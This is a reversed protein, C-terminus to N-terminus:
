ARWLGHKNCYARVVLGKQMPVYFDAEPKEGPKLYKRNVYPGNIIEVWEIYHDEEMPHPNAGVTVKSGSQGETLVPVHKERGEDEFTKEPMLVMPKGCCEMESECGKANVVEVAMPNSACKYIQAQKFM